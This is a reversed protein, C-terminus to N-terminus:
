SRSARLILAHVIIFHLYYTFYLWNTLDFPNKYWIYIFAMHFLFIHLLKYIKDLRPTTEEIKLEFDEIHKAPFAFSHIYIIVCIITVIIPIIINFPREWRIFPPFTFNLVMQANCVYIFPIFNPKLNNYIEKIDM